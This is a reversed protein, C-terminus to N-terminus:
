FGRSARVTQPCMFAATELDGSACGWRRGVGSVTVMSAGASAPDSVASKMSPSSLSSLLRCKLLAGGGDAGCFATTAGVVGVFFGVVPPSGSGETQTTPSFLLRLPVSYPHATHLPAHSPAINPQILVSLMDLCLLPCWFADVRWYLPARPGTARM